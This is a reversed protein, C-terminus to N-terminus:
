RQIWGGSFPIAQGVFFDSDNSALFLAFKADEEATALRGLPVQRKLSAQFGEKARLQPPYYVPNEVYNQAILNVQINNPAVEVGLAQVYGVQAARAASYAAVTKLGRLAVASGYVIIKGAQREIMQPLVARCLRHLPHVMVNFTDAWAEDNLDTAYIGSYNASALNAILVDVRGSQTILNECAGPQTLDSTDALMEAGEKRFLELTAPGMYDDAQTVLVRKGALKDSMQIDGQTNAQKSNAKQPHCIVAKDVCYKPAQRFSLGTAFRCSRTQCFQGAFSDPL